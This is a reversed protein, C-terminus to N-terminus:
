LKNQKLRLERLEQYFLLDEYFSSEPEDVTDPEAVEVDVDVEIDVDGEIEVDVEVDVEVDSVSDKEGEIMEANSIGIQRLRERIDNPGGLNIGELPPSSDGFDKLDIPRGETSTINKIVKYLGDEEEPEDLEEPEDVDIEDPENVDTEVSEDVEISPEFSIDNIEEITEADELAMRVEEIQEPIVDMKGVLSIGELADGKGTFDCFSELDFGKAFNEKIYQLEDATTEYERKLYVQEDYGNKISTFLTSVFGGVDTLPSVLSDFVLFLVILILFMAMTALDNNHQLWLTGVQFFDLTTMLTKLAIVSLFVTIIFHIPVRIVTPLHSNDLSYQEM